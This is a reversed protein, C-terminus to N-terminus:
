RQFLGARYECVLHIARLLPYQEPVIAKAIKKSILNDVIEKILDDAMLVTGGGVTKHTTDSGFIFVAFQEIRDPLALGHFLEPIHKKGAEFKKQYRSEREEWSNADTSPEYHVLIKKVPHLAVIDLECDYGGRSRKGVKVNRRVFYGQYELWEAVLQELHNSAM